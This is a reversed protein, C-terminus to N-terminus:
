SPEIAKLYRGVAIWAGGLGLSLSFVLLLITDLVGLGLLGFSSQYLASLQRVPTDILMLSVQILTWAILGGLLGYWAGTYLFPRRVWADTAGVLKAVVIEDRRSEISVRVTNGVVLLVALALILGLVVVIRQAVNLASSLRQVWAMDLEAESVEEFTEFQQQLGLLQDPSMRNPLLMIVTPIPNTELLDAIDGFGSLRKFEELGQERTILEVEALDENAVLSQRLAEAAENTVSKELYLAIRPEGEWSLALQQVNKLGTYLVGPLALAIALVAITMLTAAPTQLLRAFAMKATQLQSNSDFRLASALRARSNKGQAQGKGAGGQKNQTRRTVKSPDIREAGRRRSQDHRSNAM